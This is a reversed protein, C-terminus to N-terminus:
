NREECWKTCEEYSGFCAQESYKEFENHGHYDIEVWYYIIQQTETIEIEIENIKGPYKCPYFTDYFYDTFWVKDGINYKADVTITNCKQQQHPCPGDVCYEINPMGDSWDTFLKCWGNEEDYHKCKSAIM